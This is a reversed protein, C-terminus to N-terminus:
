YKYKEIQGDRKINRKFLRKTGVVLKYGTSGGQIEVEESRKAM